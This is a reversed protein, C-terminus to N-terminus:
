GGPAALAQRVAEHLQPQEALLSRLLRFQTRCRRLNHDPCSTKYYRDGQLFDTLFRVGQEFTIVCGAAVLLERERPTLFERARALYGHVLAAFLPLQVAVRRLDPEDEDAPCTMSRVMDGFDYLVTGPMVTDLDVVGLALDSEADFLVNSVKADNHVVRQPIEGARLPSLLADALGRQAAAFEIEAAARAARGCEDAAVAEELAALRRPTDHFHPLTEHLQDAPFDALLRHFEGFARGAQEAQQPTQVTLVVRVGEVFRYLRWCEGRRDRCFWAGARTPILTLVRRELDAAGAARLREALHGTVRAINDMLLGPQPFVRPNIRQLLFRVPGDPREYRLVYSDHIHGGPWPAISVPAGGVDYYECVVDSARSM